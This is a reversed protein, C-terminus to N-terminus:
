NGIDNFGWESKKVEMMVLDHSKGTEDTWFDKLVEVEKFGLKKYLRFANKNEPFVDIEILQMNIYDFLYNIFLILAGKGYGKGQVFPEGIKIGLRCKKSIYNAQGYQLEGIPRDLDKAYIIYIQAEPNEQQKEFQHKFRKQLKEMTVGMGKPFGMSTTVQPDNWWKLILDLDNKKLLKLGIRSSETVFDM